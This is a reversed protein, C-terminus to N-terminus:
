FVNRKRSSFYKKLKLIGRSLISKITGEKKDLIMSIESIKKNELFRLTIVEQYIQPINKIAECIQLFDKNKAMEEQVEIFENEIDVKAQPEAFGGEEIAANYSAPEYKKKRFYYNIENNAIKYVWASFSGRDSNYTNIKNLAKYFTEASIDKAIDPNGTRYLIYRFIRPYYSDFIEEFDLPNTKSQELIKKEKDSDM